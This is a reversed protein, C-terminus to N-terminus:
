SLGVWVAEEAWAAAAVSGVGGFVWRKVPWGGSGRSPLVQIIQSMVSGRRRVMRVVRVMREVQSARFSPQYPFRVRALVRVIMREM